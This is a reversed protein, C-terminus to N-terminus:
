TNGYILSLTVLFFPLMLTRINLTVMAPDITVCCIHEQKCSFTNCDLQLLVHLTNKYIFFTNYGLQLLVDLM